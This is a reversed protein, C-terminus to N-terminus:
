PLWRLGKVEETRVPQTGQAVLVPGLGRTEFRGTKQGVTSQQTLKSAWEAACLAHM